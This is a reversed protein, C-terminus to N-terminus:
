RTIFARLRRVNQLNLGAEGGIVGMARHVESSSPILVRDRSPIFCFSFLDESGMYILAKEDVTRIKKIDTKAAAKIEEKIKELDQDYPSVTYVLVHNHRTDDRIVFDSAVLWKKCRTRNIFRHFDPEVASSLTVGLHQFIDDPSVPPIHQTSHFRCAPVPGCGFVLFM